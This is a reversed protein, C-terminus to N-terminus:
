LDTCGESSLTSMIQLKLSNFDIPKTIFSATDDTNLQDLYHSRDHASIFIVKVCPYDDRIKEMLKIGDMGPMNIDTMVITRRLMDIDYSALTELCDIATDGFSFNVSGEKIESEFFYDYLLKLDKEDDVAIINIM